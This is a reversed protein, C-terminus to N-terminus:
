NKIKAGFLHLFDGESEPLTVVGLTSECAAPCKARM